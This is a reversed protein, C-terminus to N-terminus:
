RAPNAVPKQSVGASIASRQAVSRVNRGPIARSCTCAFICSQRRATSRVFSLAYASQRVPGYRVWGTAVTYRSIPAYPAGGFLCTVLCDPPELQRFRSLLRIPSERGASVAPLSRGIGKGSRIASLVQSVRPGLIDRAPSSTGQLRCGLNGPVHGAM